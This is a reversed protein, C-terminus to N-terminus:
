KKMATFLMVVKEELRKFLLIGLGSGVFYPPAIINGIRDYERITLTNHGNNNLIRAIDALIDSDSIPGKKIVKFEM